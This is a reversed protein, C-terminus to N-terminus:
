STERHQIPTFTVGGFQGSSMMLLVHNREPVEQLRRTLADKRTIVELSDRGFCDKVFQPNLSPLKKHEVVEPDFYVIAHDADDMANRYQPLFDRNLSSFTHLEFVATIERNAFQGKVSAQTARLKSPAHPLDRFAVFQNDSDEHTVELRRSAGTFTAILKDFNIPEVGMADCTARAAALNQM